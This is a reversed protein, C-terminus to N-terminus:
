RSRGTSPPSSTRTASSRIGSQMGVRFTAFIAMCLSINIVIQECLNLTCQKFVTFLNYRTLKLNKCCFVPIRFQCNYTISERIGLVKLLNPTPFLALPTIEYCTSRDAVFNIKKCAPSSTLYKSYVLLGLVSLPWHLLLSRSNSQCSCCARCIWTTRKTGRLTPKM